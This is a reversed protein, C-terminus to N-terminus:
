WPASLVLENCTVPTITTECTLGTINSICLLLLCKLDQVTDESYCYLGQASNSHPQKIERYGSHCHDTAINM